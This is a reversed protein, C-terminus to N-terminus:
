RPRHVPIEFHITQFSIPDGDRADYVETAMSRWFSEAGTIRTDTHLYLREYGPTDAVFQTALNV